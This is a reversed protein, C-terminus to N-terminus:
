QGIGYPMPGVTSRGVMNELCAKTLFVNRAAGLKYQVLMHRTHLNRNAGGHAYFSSGTIPIIAYVSYISNYEYYWRLVVTTATPMCTSGYNQVALVVPVAEYALYQVTGKRYADYEHSSPVRGTPVTHM